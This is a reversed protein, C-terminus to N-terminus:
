QGTYSLSNSTLSGIGVSISGSVANDPIKVHLQTAGAQLVPAIVTGGGSAPFRVANASPNVVNFGAGELVFADGPGGGGLIDTLV